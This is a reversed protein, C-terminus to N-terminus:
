RTKALIFAILPSKSPDCQDSLNVVNVKFTDLAQAKEEWLPLAEAELYAARSLRLSDPLSPAEIQHVLYTLLLHMPIVNTLEELDLGDAPIALLKKFENLVSAEYRIRSQYDADLTALMAELVELDKVLVSREPAGCPKVLAAASLFCRVAFGCFDKIYSQLQGAGFLSFYYRSLHNAAQCVANKEASSGVAAKTFSKQLSGFIPTVVAAQTQKLTSQVQETLVAHHFRQPVLERLANLTHHAIGFLRANRAHGAAPMPPPSILQLRGDETRLCQIDTSSDVVQELRTAFFLVSSRVSRVIEKLLLEPCSEVRELETVLLQVYRRLDHMTPLEDTAAAEGTIREGSASLSSLLKDPLMIEVPETIRKIAEGLYENRLEAASQFLTEREQAKMVKGRGLKEVASVLSQLVKPCDSVAKARFARDQCVKAFKAKFVGAAEAWFHSTLSSVNSAELVSQFSKHTVPDAKAQVIEDLAHVRQTQAVLVQLNVELAQHFGSSAPLPAQRVEELLETLLKKLMPWLCQLNFFVQLAVSLAIHNGQRTGTRLDEESQRRVKASVDRIWLVEARLIDVKDLGSEQLLLELEHLTHAAKSFDKGPADMQSRLKRADWLFRVVRRILVNVAQMRELLEVKWKIDQFPELIEGRVRAVSTKLAGVIDHAEGLQGDLDNISSACLLLEEHCAAIERRLDEELTVAADQLQQSLRSTDGQGADRVFAAVNFDPKRFADLLGRAM